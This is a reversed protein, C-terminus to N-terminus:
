YGAPVLIANPNQRFRQVDLEIPYLDTEADYANQRAWRIDRDLDDIQQRIDAKRQQDQTQKLENYLSDIQAQKSSVENRLSNLRSRAEHARKGIGYGKLFGSSLNPPCVNYYSDGAEGRQLGNLPTCYRTVGVKYGENWLSQDPVIKIRACSKSHDAFRSQPDYGAAGDAEGIVRWDAARCEEKSLSNCSALGVACASLAIAIALRM